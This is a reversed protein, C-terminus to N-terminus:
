LQIEVAKAYNFEANPADYLAGIRFFYLNGERLDFENAADITLTYTEQPNLPFVSANIDQESRVLRVPEGVSMDAGAYLGIKSVNGFLTQELSFTATITTGDLTISPNLIRIYPTVVLDLKTQGQIDVLITDIPQFNTRLPIVKYTNAFLQTDAYTGDVKYNLTQPTVNEFGQEWLQLEGGRIIDQEVLEGTDADLVSGFLGSDPGTLNDLETLDCSALFSFVTIISLIYKIKKM